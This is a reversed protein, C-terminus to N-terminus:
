EVSYLKPNAGYENDEPDSDQVLFVFLVIWGIIPLLNLFIFGGSRGTDHLRRISVGLSPLFIALGLFNPLIVQGSKNGLGWVEFVSLAISIIAVYLQFFWYEKRRSRGEFVAYKKLASIFYKM